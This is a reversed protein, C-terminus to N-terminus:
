LRFSVGAKMPLYNTNEDKAFAIGYAAQVFAVLSENMPIDLGAGFLISFESTSEGRLVRSANGDSITVDSNSLGFFGGGVFVYPSPSDGLPILWAKLTGSVTILTVSGGKITIGQGGLGFDNLIRDADLPFSNYDFLANLSFSSSLAYGLGGGVNYGMKWYNSFDSPQSPFSLGGGVSVLVNKVTQAAANSGVVFVALATLIPFRM